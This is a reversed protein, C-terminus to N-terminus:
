LKRSNRVQPMRNKKDGANHATLCARLNNKIHKMDDTETPNVSMVRELVCAADLDNDFGNYVFYPPIPAVQMLEEMATVAIRNLLPYM